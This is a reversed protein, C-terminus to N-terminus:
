VYLFSVFYLSARHSRSVIQDNVAYRECAATVRFNPRFLSCQALARTLAQQESQHSWSWGSAWAGNDDRAVALAKNNNYLNYIKLINNLTIRPAVAPTVIHQPLHEVCGSLVVCALILMLRVYQMVEEVGGRSISLNTDHRYVCRMPLLGCCCSDHASQMDHHMREGARDHHTLHSSARVLPYGTYHSVDSVPPVRDAAPPIPSWAHQSLGSCVAHRCRCHRWHSVRCANASDAHGARGASQGTHQQGLGGITLFSSRTMYRCRVSLQRAPYM